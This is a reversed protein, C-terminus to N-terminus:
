LATTDARLTQYYSVRMRIRELNLKLDIRFLAQLVKLDDVISQKQSDSCIVDGCSTAIGTEVMGAAQNRDRCERRGGSTYVRLQAM